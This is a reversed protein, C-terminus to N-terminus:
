IDSFSFNELIEQCLFQNKKKKTILTNANLFNLYYSM